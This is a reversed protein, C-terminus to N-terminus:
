HIILSSSLLSQSPRSVALSLKFFISDFRSRSCVSNWNFKIFDKPIIYLGKEEHRNVSRM